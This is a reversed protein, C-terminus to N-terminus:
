DRPTDNSIKCIVHRTKMDWTAISQESGRMWIRVESRGGLRFQTGHYGIIDKELSLVREADSESTACSVLRLALDSFDNWDKWRHAERWMRNVCPTDKAHSLWPIELPDEFPWTNFQRIACGPDIGLKQAFGEIYGFACEYTRDYPNHSFREDESMNAYDALWQNYTTAAM